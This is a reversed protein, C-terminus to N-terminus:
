SLREAIAEVSPAGDARCAMANNGPGDGTVDSGDILVTPSGYRKFDDPTAEDMLDWEACEVARGFADVATQINARAQVANPCGEFYVLEIQPTKTMREEAEM